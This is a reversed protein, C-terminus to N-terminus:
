RNEKTKDSRNDTTARFISSFSVLMHIWMLLVLLLLDSLFPREVIQVCSLNFVHMPLMATFTAILLLSLSM